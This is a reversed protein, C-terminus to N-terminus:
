DQKLTQIVGNLEDSLTALTVMTKAADGASLAMDDALRTVEEVSANIEESTASQEESATAIVRVMDTSGEIMTTMNSLADGAAKALSTCNVVVDTTQKMADINQSTGQQIASVAKEVESTAQMTKEALKRVEDAVVAFGRGADGARAAEIAANLALLNTQDAIDSIVDMIQGIGQAREGLEGLSEMMKESRVAIDDIASVVETVAEAENVVNEHMVESHQAADSANRAVEMVATNMQEMAAATEGSRAAQRETGRRTQEVLLSLEESVSGINVVISELQGAAQNLGEKRAVEAQAQAEAAAQLADNARATQAEAEETKQDAMQISSVLSGVMEKLALHLDLLEGSFETDPPVNSYEGQSVEKASQVIVYLPKMTRLVFFYALLGILLAVGLGVVVTAILSENAADVVESENKIVLLKHGTSPVTHMRVFQLGSKAEIEYMGDQKESLSDLANNGTAGIHKMIINEYGPAALVTGDNELLVVHGTEGIKIDQMMTVLMSLQVDIAVVGLVNGQQDRVATMTSAVPMGATSQYAKSVASGSSSAVATKYWPRLRPDFRPPLETPDSMIFGGTSSGYYVIEYSEHSARANHLVGAIRRELQPLGKAVFTVETQISSNFTLAGTAEQLEELLALEKTTNIADTFFNTVIHEVLIADTESSMEFSKIADDRVIANSIILVLLVSVLSATMVLATVKAKISKFM